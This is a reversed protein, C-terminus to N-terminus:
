LDEAERAAVEFKNNHYGKKLSEWLYEAIFRIFGYQQFQKVHCMEHKLWKKNQLFDFRSTNYLHITKGIVIAANNAHLRKAALKAIWSIERIRIGNLQIEKNSKTVM